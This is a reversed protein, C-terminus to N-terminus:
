LEKIERFPCLFLFTHKKCRDIDVSFGGKASIQEKQTVFSEVKLEDLSIKKPM